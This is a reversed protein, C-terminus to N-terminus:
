VYSVGEQIFLKYRKMHLYVGQFNEIFEEKCVFGHKQTFNLILHNEAELNITVTKLNALNECVYNLFSTGVKQRQNDVEVYIALLESNGQRDVYSFNAYGLIQGHLQCVLFISSGMRRMLRQPNYALKLFDQQVNTPLIGEYTTQFNKSAIKRVCEIDESLMERVQM